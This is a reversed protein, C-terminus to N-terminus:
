RKMGNDNKPAPKIDKPFVVTSRKISANEFVKAQLAIGSLAPINPEFIKFHPFLELQLVTVSDVKVRLLDTSKDLFVENCEFEEDLIVQDGTRNNTTSHLKIPKPLGKQDRGWIMSTHRRPSATKTNNKLDEYLWWTVETPLFDDRASFLVDMATFRNPVSWRGWLDGNSLLKSELLDMSLIMRIYDEVPVPNETQANVLFQKIIPSVPNAILKRPPAADEKRKIMPALNAVPLRRQYPLGDIMVMEDWVSGVKENEESLSLGWSATTYYGLQKEKDMISLTLRKMVVPPNNSTSNSSIGEGVVAVAHRGHFDEIFSLHKILASGIRDEISEQLFCSVIGFLCMSFHLMIVM